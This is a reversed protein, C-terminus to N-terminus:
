SAAPLWEVAVDTVAEGERLPIERFAGSFSGSFYFTIDEEVLLAGDDAVEVRVDANTLSFTQAGAQSSALLPPPARRRRGGPPAAGLPAGGRAGALPAARGHRPGGRPRRRAAVGRRARAAAM